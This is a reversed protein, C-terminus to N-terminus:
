SETVPPTSAYGNSVSRRSSNWLHRYTDLEESMLAPDGIVAVMTTDWERVGDARHILLVGVSFAGTLV